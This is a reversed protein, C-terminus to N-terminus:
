AGSGPPNRIVEAITQLTQKFDIPKSVYGDMGVALCRRESEKFAHATMAIIPIHGGQERERQRIASTAEFGNMTPMQVDMLILDYSGEESMEVAGQGSVAFDVRYGRRRLMRGLLDRITHDDEAVLLRPMGAEGVELVTAASAGSQEAIGAREEAPAAAKFPISCTFTSGKGDESTFSITGGMREVIGKSIVLGLGTGGYSRSHSEDVQSFVQFLLHKKDEPIGIGTDTVSLTVQWGRQGRPEASMRIEVKGQDCFKVANSALNTVVQSLRTQDGLLLDPVRGDLQLDLELGKSRAAPLLLHVTHELCKRISFPQVEISVKDMEMRTLDLIDNLIRVLSSASRHAAAICERQDKDLDGALTLDLMGLVGTMPTRLEHSMNALFQSKARTAAEAVEKAQRLEAERQKRRTVNRVVSILLRTEGITAAQSSVEVPFSSGDKRLHVTEFSLGGSDAEEMQATIEQTGGAGRLDGITLSLLEEHSYGYSKVAAANAEIIRGDDRGVFLIIDRSNQALLEYRRQIEEATKVSQMLQDREALSRALKLNSYSLQSIGDALKTFFSMSTNLTERTLRPVASIAALYREEDFGYRTAQSRFLQYDVPEDEFFFQGMFLNGFVRGGIMVPTAVDWMNNKCKYIKYQGPAVGACLLTDSELCNRSAEPHARHFETCAPQWGTGVLVKGKIDLLGMPLRTLKYFDDMLSQLGAVDLIDGLELNGLEGEPSLISKLKLRVRQESKKLAEEMQKRVTIDIFTVVVGDIRGDKTWYPVLRKLFCREGDLTEVERESFPEGGLVSRADKQFSPWDIKGAIHRFPRGLDSSILNFLSAFAPTFGKINLRTDLFLTATASSTLLNEMDANAQNLEEVTGQLEANLTTLEENLAQLEEKSTELEENTSQLEENASQFEENISFLEENASLFGDHCAELQETTAQLQEHTIRLQEELHRVLQANDGEQGEAGVVPSGASVPAPPPLAPQFVVLALRGAAQPAEVPEVVVNVAVEAGEEVFRVGKFEVRHQDSFAKFIAARLAPRLEARAMRLIDRTAKGSPVELLGKTPSCVHVVEYKENVMVSPPAFRQVLLREALVGPDAEQSAAPKALRTLQSRVPLAAPYSFPAESRKVGPQRQFIKWKKDLASFLEPAREVSEAAGLFLIGGPRLSQHFLAILRRQMDPNLYILFNRCVLLDLRSFPPDKVVSHHAFVVMERLAKVVQFHGEHPTFFHALREGGVQEAVAREYIGSRAQAIAEEDIDTAFILVKADLRQEELYERVLMATSYVEEGTACCSHWIRVPVEPQCGTFLRPIVQHKLVSFAEPDRFFGTVGIMIDQSLARAELENGRVLALYQGISGADNVAMRHEIRRTITNTKYSSFDHGTAKRVLELIAALEPECLTSRDTDHSPSKTDAENKASM